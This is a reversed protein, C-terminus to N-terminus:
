IAKDNKRFIYGDLADRRKEREREREETTTTTTAVGCWRGNIRWIEM